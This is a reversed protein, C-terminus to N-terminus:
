TTWKQIMLQLAEPTFPKPLFDCFGAATMAQKDEDRISASVGIIPLSKVGMSSEWDKIHCTTEIGDMDPMQIDCFVVDIRAEDRLMVAMAEHGNAAFSVKTAGLSSLHRGMMGRIFAKDDIVLINLDGITPAEENM